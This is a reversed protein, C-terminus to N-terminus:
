GKELKALEADIREREALLIKKRKKEREKEEKELKKRQYELYKRSKRIKELEKCSITSGTYPNVYITCACDRQDCSPM